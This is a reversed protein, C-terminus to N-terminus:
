QVRGKLKADIRDMLAQAEEEIPRLDSVPEPEHEAKFKAEAAAIARGRKCDPCPILKTRTEGAFIGRQLIYSVMIRGEFQGCAECPPPLVNEAAGSMERGMRHIDAVTPYDTHDTLWMTIIAEAEIPSKAAQMLANQLENISVDTLTGFFRTGQLRAIQKECCHVNGSTRKM